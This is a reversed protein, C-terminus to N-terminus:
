TAKRQKETKEIRKLMSSPEENFHNFWKPEGAGPPDQFDVIVGVNRLAQGFREDKNEILYNFLKAVIQLNLEYRTM